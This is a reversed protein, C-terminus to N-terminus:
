DKELIHEGETLVGIQTSDVALLVLEPIEFLGEITITPQSVGTPSCLSSKQFHLLKLGQTELFWKRVLEM